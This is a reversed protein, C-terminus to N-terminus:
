PLSALVAKIEDLFSHLRFPKTIYGNFGADLARERDGQMAHATVAIIPINSTTPQSRARDFMEWGDMNPMSLDLLVFTPASAALLELGSVGDEAALVQAGHHSLIKTAVSMNDADDEVIVVKWTKPDLDIPM